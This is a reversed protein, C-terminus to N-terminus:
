SFFCAMTEATQCSLFTSHELFHNAAECPQDDQNAQLAGVASSKLLWSGTAAVDKHNFWVQGRLLFLLAGSFFKQVLWAAHEVHAAMALQLTARASKESCDM